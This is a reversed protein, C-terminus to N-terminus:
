EKGQIPIFECIERRPSLLLGNNRNSLTAVGLPYETLWNWSQLRKTELLVIKDPNDQLISLLMERSVFIDANSIAVIDAVGAVGLITNFLKIKRAGKATIYHEVYDTGGGFHVCTYGKDKLLTNLMDFLFTKGTASQGWVLTVGSKLTARVPMGLYKTDIEIQM